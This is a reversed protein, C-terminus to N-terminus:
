RCSRSPGTWPRSRPSRTWASFWPRRGLEATPHRRGELVPLRVWPAGTRFKWVIADLVQRHERWRGGRKPRRDPLLLDIRAWQADTLPM